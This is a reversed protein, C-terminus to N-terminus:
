FSLEPFPILLVPLRGQSERPEFLVAGFDKGLQHRRTFFKFREFGDGGPVFVSKDEFPALAALKFLVELQEGRFGPLVVGPRLDALEKFLFVLDDRIKVPLYVSKFIGPPGRFRIM